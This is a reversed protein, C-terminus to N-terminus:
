KIELNLASSVRVTFLNSKVFPCVGVCVCVSANLTMWSSATTPWPPSKDHNKLPFVQLNKDNLMKLSNQRARQSAPCHVRWLRNQNDGGGEKFLSKHTVSSFAMKSFLKKRTKNRTRKKGGEITKLPSSRSFCNDIRTKLKWLLKEEKRTKMMCFFTNFEERPFFFVCSFLVVLSTLDVPLKWPKM